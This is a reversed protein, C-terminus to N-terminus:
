RSKLRYGKPRQFLRNSFDFEVNDLRSSAYSQNGTVDVGIVLNKLNEAVYFVYTVEGNGLPKGSNTLKVEIKRCEQEGIMQTGALRYEVDKHMKAFTQVDSLFPSDAARGQASDEVSYEHTSLDFSTTPQNWCSYIIMSTSQRRYCDDRKATRYTTSFGHGMFSSTYTEMALFDPQHLLIDRVTPVYDPPRLEWVKRLMALLSAPYNGNHQDGYLSFNKVVIRKERGQYKFVLASEMSSDDWMQYAPYTPAAAQFDEMQGLRIIEDVDGATIKAEKMSLKPNEIDSESESSSMVEYEIRGSRHLRFYLRPQLLPAMGREHNCVTLVIEDGSSAVEEQTCISRSQQSLALVPLLFILLATLSLHQM